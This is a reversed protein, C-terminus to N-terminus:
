TFPIVKKGKSRRVILLPIVVAFLIIALFIFFITLCLRNARKRIDKVQDFPIIEYGYYANLNGKRARTFFLSIIHILLTVGLIAIMIIIETNMPIKNKSAAKIIYFIGIIIAGFVYINFALWNMYIPRAVLSKYNRILFYPVKEVGMLLDSKYIRVDIKLHGYDILGFTFFIVSVIMLIFMFAPHPIFRTPIKIQTSDVVPALFHVLVFFLSVGLGIMGLLMLGAVRLKEWRIEKAIQDPIEVNELEKKTFNPRLPKQFQGHHRFFGGEQQYPDIKPEDPSYPNNIKSDNAFVSTQPKQNEEGNNNPNFNDM